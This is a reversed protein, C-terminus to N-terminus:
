NEGHSTQALTTKATLIRNTQQVRAEHCFLMNQQRYESEIHFTLAVLKRIGHINEKYKSLRITVKFEQGKLTIDM